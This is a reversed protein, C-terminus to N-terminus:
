KETLIDKVWDLPLHFIEAITTWVGFAPIRQIRMAGSKVARWVEMPYIDPYEDQLEDAIRRYTKGHKRLDLCQIQLRSLKVYHAGSIIEGWMVDFISVVQVGLTTKEYVEEISTERARRRDRRALEDESSAPYERDRDARIGALLRNAVEEAELSGPRMRAIEEISPGDSGIKRIQTRMGNGWKTHSNKKSRPLVRAEVGLAVFLVVPGAVATQGNSRDKTMNASEVRTMILSSKKASIVNM